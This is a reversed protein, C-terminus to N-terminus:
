KPLPFRLHGAKDSIRRVQALVGEWEERPLGENDFDTRAWERRLDFFFINDDRNELPKIENEIFTDLEALYDILEQPLNFDM